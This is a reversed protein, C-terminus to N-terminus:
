TKFSCVMASRDVLGGKLEDEYWTRVVVGHRFVSPCRGVPGCCEDSTAVVRLAETWHEAFLSFNRPSRYYREEFLRELELVCLINGDGDSVAVNADHGTYVAISGGEPEPRPRLPKQLRLVRRDNTQPAPPMGLEAELAKAITAVICYSDTCGYTNAAPTIRNRRAFDRASTWADTENTDWLLRLNGGWRNAAGLQGEHLVVEIEVVTREDHQHVVGLAAFCQLAIQLLRRM